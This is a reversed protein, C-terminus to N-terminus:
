QTELLEAETNLAIPAGASKEYCCISELTVKGGGDDVEKILNYEDMKLECAPRAAEAEGSM